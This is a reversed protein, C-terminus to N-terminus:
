LTSVESGKYYLVGGSSTLIEALDIDGDVTCNGSANIGTASINWRNASIGFDRGNSTPIVGNSPNLKLYSMGSIEPQNTQATARIQFIDNADLKMDFPYSPTSDGFGVYGSPLVTFKSDHASNECNIIPDVGNGEVHLVSSPSLDGIGIKGDQTIAVHFTDNTALYMLDESPTYRIRGADLNVPSGFEIQSLDADGSRLNFLVNESGNGVTVNRSSLPSSNNIGVVNNTTDIYLTGEDFNADGTTQFYAAGNVTLDEAISLSGSINTDNLATDKDNKPAIADTGSLQWFDDTEGGVSSSIQYSYTGTIASGFQFALNDADQIAIEDPENFANKNSGNLLTVFIAGDVSLGHNITIDNNSDLDGDVFTGEVGAGGGGGELIILLNGDADGRLRVPTGLGDKDGYLMSSGILDGTQETKSEALNCYAFMVSFMICFVFTIRKM